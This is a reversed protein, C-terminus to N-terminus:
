NRKRLLIVVRAAFIAVTTWNDFVDSPRPITSQSQPQMPARRVPADTVPQANVPQNPHM